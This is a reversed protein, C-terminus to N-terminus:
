DKADATLGKILDRSAVFRFPGNAGDIANDSSLVRCQDGYRVLFSRSPYSPSVQVGRNLYYTEHTAEIRAPNEFRGVICTRICDTVNNVRIFRRMSKFVDLLEAETKILLTHEFTVVTHPLHIMSAFTHFDNTVYTEGIRDLLDQYIAKAATPTHPDSTM